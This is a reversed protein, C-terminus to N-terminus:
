PLKEKPTRAGGDPRALLADALGLAAGWVVHAAIMMANRSAPQRDAPAMAGIAPVWGLYSGSWVALGYAIGSGVPYRQRLRPALLAYLSGAAAGFGFHAALTAPDGLGARRLPSLPRGAVHDTILRPPLAYGRGAPLRPHSALMVATMPVTALLGALGGRWAAALGDDDGPAQEAM